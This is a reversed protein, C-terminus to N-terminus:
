QSDEWVRRLFAFTEEACRKWTFDISREYAKQGCIRRKEENTALSTLTGAISEPSEPDFYVGADRLIDPLGVRDSSAIPLRAGMAELLTNPFCECSSAFVFIDANRYEPLLAKTDLPGILEVHGGANEQRIARELPGAASTSVGGVLRLRVNLGTQNRTLGVARVLEPGHKYHYLYSVYLVTVVSGIDYSRSEQIRFAEDLGHPVVTSMRIGSVQSTVVERSHRSVFIVGASRRFSAAHNRRYRLFLEYEPTGRYHELEARDFPLLNRCMTVAVSKRLYVRLQGSPFFEVDPRLRRVLRPYAWLHWLYRKLRTRSAPWHHTIVRVGDDLRGLKEYFQTSCVFYIDMDSPIAGTGLLGKCHRVFGGSGGIDGYILLRV